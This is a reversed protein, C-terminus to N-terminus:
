YDEKTKINDGILTLGDYWQRERPSRVNHAIQRLDSKITNRIPASDQLTNTWSSEWFESPLINLISGAYQQVDEPDYVNVNGDLMSAEIRDVVYENVANINVKSM